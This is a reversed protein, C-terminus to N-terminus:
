RRGCPAVITVQPHRWAPEDRRASPRVSRIAAGAAAAAVRGALSLRLRIACAVVLVTPVVVAWSAAALELWRPLAAPPAGFPPNVVLSVILVATVFTVSLAALGALDGLTQCLVRAWGSTSSSAPMVPGGCRPVTRAEDLSRTSSPKWSRATGEGILRQGWVARFTPAGLLVERPATDAAWVIADAIAEPCFLPPVPQAAYPAWARRTLLSVLALGAM